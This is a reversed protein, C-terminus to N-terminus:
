PTPQIVGITGQREPPLSSRGERLRQLLDSYIDTDSQVEWADVIGNKRVGIVDPRLSSSGVRGTATRWARQLTIYEYEGSQALMNAHDIIAQSHGLTTSSSEAQGYIPVGNELRMPMGRRPVVNLGSGTPGEVAVGETAASPSESLESAGKSEGLHLELQEGQSAAKEISSTTEVVPISEAEVVEAEKVAAPAAELDKVFSFEGQGSATFTAENSATRTITSEETVLGEEAAVTEEAAVGEEALVGEEFLGDTAVVLGVQALIKGVKTVGYGGVYLAKAGSTQSTFTGLGPGEGGIDLADYIGAVLPQIDKVGQAFDGKAFRGTPDFRNLPDGGCFSYLDMSAAHGLPDPSLFHGAVPDYYRAGLNYFGSPDIGRSRWVLTDALPTSGLLPSAQYGQVPGYGGVRVPNWTVTGGGITALINGCYDNIVPMTLGDSERVTAELGGLGQMSGYHGDLDPGLVKWTRKGNLSVGVEEFEVQPDFYADLTTGMITNTYGNVVPV